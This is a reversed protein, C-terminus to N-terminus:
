TGSRISPPNLEAHLLKGTFGQQWCYTACHAISLRRSKRGQSAGIKKSRNSHGFIVGIANSTGSGCGNLEGARPVDHLLAGEAAVRM